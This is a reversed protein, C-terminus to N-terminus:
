ILILTIVSKYRYNISLWCLNHPEVHQGDTFGLCAVDDKVKAQLCNFMLVATPQCARARM